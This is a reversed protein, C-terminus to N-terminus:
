SYHRIRRRLGDIWKAVKWRYYTHWPQAKSWAKSEDQAVDIITSTKSEAHHRIVALTHPPHRHKLGSSALRKFLDADMTFRLSENIRQHFSRPWFVTHSALHRAGTSIEFAFAPRDQLLSLSPAKGQREAWNGFFLGRPNSRFARAITLFAGPLYYDDSNIWGILEGTSRDCGKNLAHSQGRDKTSEWHALWPSYKQLIPVTGDPSGGDIVIFELAPYNQLLVSRITEEIYQSQNFTPCVITIRPWGGSPAEKFQDIGTELTWPWGELDVPSLPLTDVTACPNM